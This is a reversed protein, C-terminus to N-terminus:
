IQFIHFLHLSGGFALPHVRGTVVASFPFQLLGRYVCQLLHADLKLLTLTFSSKGYYYPECETGKHRQM